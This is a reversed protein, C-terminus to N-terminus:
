YTYNNLTITINGNYVEMLNITENYYVTNDITIKLNNTESPHHASWTWANSNFTEFGTIDENDLEVVIDGDNILYSIDDNNSDLINL